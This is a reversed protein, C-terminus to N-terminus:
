PTSDELSLIKMTATATTNSHSITSEVVPDGTFANTAGGEVDIVIPANADLDYAVIEAPAASVFSVHGVSTSSPNAYELSMGIIKIADGDISTNAVVQKCMVVTTDASAPFDTGSGGDLSVANTSITVAVGIRQGGTWYVDYTGNTQGHGGALVATATNADTKVWTGLAWAVPLVIEFPNPHDATRVLSKNISIGGLQLSVGYSATPM